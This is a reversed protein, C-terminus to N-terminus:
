ANKAMRLSFIFFDYMDAIIPSDMLKRTEEWPQEAIEEATKGSVAGLLGFVAERKETLFVPMLAAFMESNTVDKNARADKKFDKVAQCDMLEAAYPIAKEMAEFQMRTNM